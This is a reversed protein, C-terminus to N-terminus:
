RLVRVPNGRELKEHSDWAMRDTAMRELDARGAIVAAIRELAAVRNRHQSRNERAVVVIGTPLHRARVASDTTNVHQGGPGSARMTEWKVDSEIVKSPTSTEPLRFVGVYWNRRKHTPRIPSKASWLATGTWTAAFADADPGTIVAIASAPGHGDSDGVSVVDVGIGAVEAEGKMLDIARRVAMRCEAPGRGSSILIRTM